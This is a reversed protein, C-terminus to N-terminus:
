KLWENSILHGWLQASEKYADTCIQELTRINKIIVNLKELNRGIKTKIEPPIGHKRGNAKTQLYQIVKELKIVKGELSGDEDTQIEPLMGYVEDM